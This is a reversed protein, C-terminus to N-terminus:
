RKKWGSSISGSACATLGIGIGRHVRADRGAVAPARPRCRCCRGRRRRSRRRPRAAAARGARHGVAHADLVEADAAHVEGVLQEVAVVVSTSTSATGIPSAGPVSATARVPRDGLGVVRRRRRASREVRVAHARAHHEVHEGAETAVTSRIRSRRTRARARDVLADPQGVDTAADTSRATSATSSTSASNHGDADGFPVDCHSPLRVM